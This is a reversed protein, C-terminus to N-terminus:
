KKKNKNKNEEAEREIRDGENAGATTAIGGILPAAALLAPCVAVAATAAVLGLAGGLFKGKPGKFAISEETTPLNKVKNKVMSKNNLSNYSYVSVQSVKM